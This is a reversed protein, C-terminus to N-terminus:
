KKSSKRIMKMKKKKDMPHSTLYTCQALRSSQYCYHRLTVCNLLHKRKKKKPRLIKHWYPHLFFLTFKLDNLVGNDASRESQGLLQGTNCRSRKFSFAFLTKINDNGSNCFGNFLVKKVRTERKLLHLPTSHMRM